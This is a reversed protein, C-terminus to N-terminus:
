GDEKIGPGHQEHTAPAEYSNGNGNENGLNFDIEDDMDEENKTGDGEGHQESAEPADEVKM